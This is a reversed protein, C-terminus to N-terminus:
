AIESPNKRQIKKWLLWAPILCLLGVFNTSKRIIRYVRQKTPEPKSRDEDALVIDHYGNFMEEWSQKGTRVEVKPDPNDPNATSNDYWAVCRLVTGAPLRKPEVLEYRNQWRFDYRPVDLLIEERGDPYVAEYRFAKGRLHMHPFMALLLVDEDFRRTREVRHNPEGPPIRLDPDAVLNTAVEKRVQSPDAFVLGISTQDTQPTGIPAYHVVFLLHWGAPIRKATGAPLVMPPSGPTMADLCYSGLEGTEDMEGQTSPDKLFVNCHHVVRRNGPQIESATIWKDETFGPDVEFYQYDVVGEAPVQYAEKMSVVRDPKKIRWGDPFKAPPPLDAPNGEPVGAEVWEAILQKEQDTLRADNAFHGFKPNAHWPPMRGEEVADAIAGAWGAAQRYTALSFPGVQGPRHCEVCRRQLIPAIERCYTAISSGNPKAPRDIPCGFAPTEALTVARGGLIAEIADILDRRTPESKRSGIAYQDDIRGRYRIARHEDLVVVEPTRNVGLQDALRAERDRLIPFRVDHAKVFRELDAQNESDDCAVGLFRVGRGEFTKSIRAMPCDPKLFAVVVVRREQWDSLRRIKGSLDPRAFEEVRTGIAPQDTSATALGSSSLLFLASFFVGRM